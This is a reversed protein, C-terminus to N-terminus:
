VTPGDVPRPADTPLARERVQGKGDDLDSVTPMLGLVEHVKSRTEQRNDRDIAFCVFVASVTDLLITSFFYLVAFILFLTMFFMYIAWRKRVDGGVDSWVFYSATGMIASTSAALMFGTLGLIIPPVWWVAYANIFNRQLMQVTDKGAEWFSEGTIAMHVTAFETIWELLSIIAQACCNVLWWFWSDENERKMKEAAKRLLEGITIIISSLCISGFSPGLAHGLSRRTKAPIYVDGEAAFYWQAIVGAVVFVRVQSVLFINWLGMFALFVYYPTAWSVPKWECCPVESIASTLSNVRVCANLGENFEVNEPDNAEFNGNTAVFVGLLALVGVVLLAFIMTSLAFGLLQLNERIGDAAVDLVKAVMTLKGSLCMIVLLLLLAVGILVGGAIYREVILQYVGAGLPILVLIGVTMYVMWIAFYSFLLLFVFGLIISGIAAGLIWAWAHELYNMFDGVDERNRLDNVADSASSSVFAVASSNQTDSTCYSLDKIYEQKYLQTFDENRMVAGYIGVGGVLIMLVTYFVTFCVDRYPRNEYEYGKRVLPESTEPNGNDM